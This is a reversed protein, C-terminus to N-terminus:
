SLVPNSPLKNLGVHCTEDLAWVLLCGNQDASCFMTDEHIWRVATVEAEHGPITRSIGHYTDDQIITACELIHHKLCVCLLCLVVYLLTGAVFSNTPALFCIRLGHYQLLM